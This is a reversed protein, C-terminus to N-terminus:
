ISVIYGNVATQSLSKIFLKWYDIAIHMYTLVLGKSIHFILKREGRGPTLVTCILLEKYSFLWGVFLTLSSRLSSFVNWLLVCLDLSRQSFPPWLSPLPSPTHCCYGRPHSSTLVGDVQLICPFSVAAHVSCLGVLACCRLARSANMKLSTHYTVAVSCFHSGCDWEGPHDLFLPAKGGWTKLM